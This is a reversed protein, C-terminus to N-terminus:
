LEDLIADITQRSIQSLTQNRGRYYELAIVSVSLAWGLGRRWADEPVGVREKFISRASKPLVSWAVMLDCAPDGIGSLGFDIVASLRGNEVLINGGQLDGHLWVPDGAYKPTRMADEWVRLLTKEPYEDALGAIAAKTLEDRKELAVGRYHNQVGALPAATVDKTQLGMVFDALTAAASSWDEVANEVLSGGPLWEYLSWAYPFEATEDGRGMPRPINLPLGALKPLWIQEKEIQPVAEKRKPFRACLTDGLRFMTNDTGGSVIPDLTLHKYEPFQADIIKRAVIEDLEIM